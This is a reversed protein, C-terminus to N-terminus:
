GSLLTSKGYMKYNQTSQKDNLNKGYESAVNNVHDWFLFSGGQLVTSLLIRKKVHKMLLVVHLRCLTRIFIRYEVVVSVEKHYPIRCKATGLTEKFNAM